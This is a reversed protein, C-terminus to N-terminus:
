KGSKGSKSGTKGGQVRKQTTPASKKGEEKAVEATAMGAEQGEEGAAEAQEEARQKDDEAQLKAAEATREAVQKAAEDATVDQDFAPETTEGTLEGDEVAAGGTFEPGRSSNGSNEDGKPQMVSAIALDLESFGPRTGVPAALPSQSKRGDEESFNSKAYALATPVIVGNGAGDEIRALDAHGTRINQVAAKEEQLRQLRDLEEQRMQGGRLNQPDPVLAGYERSAAAENLQAEMSQLAGMGMPGDTQIMRAEGNPDNEDQILQYHPM